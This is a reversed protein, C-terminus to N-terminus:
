ARGDHAIARAPLGDFCKEYLRLLSRAEAGWNYISQISDRGRMGKALAEVPHDFLWTVAESIAAPDHPDVTLGCDIKNVLTQWKPFCSAVVPIGAAMYEFLKVPQSDVFGPTPHLVVLGVRADFVHRVVETRPQFGVYEIREWGSMAEMEQRFEPPDIGGVFKFTASFRDPLRKAAAIMERAGRSIEASGVYIACYNREGYPLRPRYNLFEELRPFNQVLTTKSKPFRAAIRPTAAVVADLPLVALKEISGAIGSVIGRLPRPIWRKALIDNALHEHADYIVRKGAVKLLLGVPLLEPDHFHYIGAPTHMAKQFIEMAMTTMRRGRGVARKLPEIRVGEIEEARDHPAILVVEYGAEALSRCEKQFIRVDRASHVTTLHVIRRAPAIGQGVSAKAERAVSPVSVTAQM